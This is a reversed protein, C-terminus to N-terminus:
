QDRPDRKNVPLTDERAPSVPPDHNISGERGCGGAALSGTKQYSGHGGFAWVLAMCCCCGSVWAWLVWARLWLGGGGGSARRKCAGGFSALWGLKAATWVPPGPNPRGGTAALRAGGLSGASACRGDGLLAIHFAAGSQPSIVTEM